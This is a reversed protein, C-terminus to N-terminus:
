FSSYPMIFRVITLSMGEFPGFVHLFPIPFVSAVVYQSYRFALHSRATQYSRRYKWFDLVAVSVFNPSNPSGGTVSIYEAIM